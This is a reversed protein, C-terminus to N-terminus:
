GSNSNKDAKLLETCMKIIIFLKYNYVGYFCMRLVDMRLVDMRLVVDQTRGDESLVDMRLVVNLLWDFTEKAKTAM